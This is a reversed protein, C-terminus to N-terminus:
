SADPSSLSITLRYRDVTVAGPGNRTRRGLDEGLAREAAELGKEDISEVLLMWPPIDNVASTAKGEATANKAETTAIEPEFLHGAVVPAPALARALGESELWHLLEQDKGDRPHFQWATVFGGIGQGRTEVIRMASRRMKELLPVNRQTLPTPNNLRELYSPSAVTHISQTEYLTFFKGSRPSPAGITEYRRARLFGPISVREPLHEHIHWANVGAEQSPDIDCWIALIAGGLISEFGAM